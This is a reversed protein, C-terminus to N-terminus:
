DFGPSFAHASRAANNTVLGPVRRIEPSYPDQDPHIGLMEWLMVADEADIANGAVIYRAKAKTGDDLPDVDGIESSRSEHDRHAPPM